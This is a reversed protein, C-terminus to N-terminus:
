IEDQEGTYPNCGHADYEGDDYFKIAKSVEQHVAIEHKNSQIETDDICACIFVAQEPSISINVRKEQNHKIDRNDWGDSKIIKKIPLM